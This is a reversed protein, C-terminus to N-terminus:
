NKNFFDGLTQGGPKREPKSIKTKNKTKKRKASRKNENLQKISLSIRKREVDVELVKVKVKQNVSVIDSPDKVFSDSLESIHVLGDQHVGVDVFAGFNTVNTIVGELLMGKELDTIENVGEKFKVPDFKERPDRGPKKLEEVIDTLTPIGVEETVYMNLEIKSILEERQMLDAIRCDLDEAMKEVIGYREPHVSSKDLPNSSGRVRLFGACQEFTKEGIGSVERIEQRKSFAGNEDRYAVIREATQPGVGSVYTLLQKSATNIEVGVKNVCSIVTGDLSKKLKNQDVDHQYQGVGISKPDLKVLEALPDMLRRGISVAGRVTIDHDPFEERATESASYISAGSENVIVVSIEKGVKTDKIFKETERSATGNGIAIAEIGYKKCLDKVKDADRQSFQKSNHPYITANELLKGESNLCVLKCGTRFGPDIGMVAKQGLPPAMLLNRLNKVFVKIAEEDARKKSDMRIETAISLSLLRKFSDEIAKEIQRSCENNGKVFLKNLIEVAEEEPVTVKVNLIKEKMGRRMALIRHSPTDTVTENYDFYDRYKKGEEQKGKLVKSELQAKKHYFERLQERAEKNENIWEAIIDRAGALADEASTVKKEKNIYKEAEDVPDIDKQQFILKALRELGKEKAITAKTRRKPKYPLYIDELATLSEAANIRKKLEETLKGQKKISGLIYERRKDIEKLKELQDRINTIQVEDLSGTAEKRYRAIFPVTGGAELLEVAAKVKNEPLGQDRSIITLPNKM